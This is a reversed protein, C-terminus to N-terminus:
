SYNLLHSAGKGETQKQQQEAAVTQQKINDIAKTNLIKKEEETKPPEEPLSQLRAFFNPLRVGRRKLEAATWDQQPQQQAQPHQPSKSPQVPQLMPPQKPQTQSARREPSLPKPPGLLQEAKKFLEVLDAPAEAPVDPAENINQKPHNCILQYNHSKV